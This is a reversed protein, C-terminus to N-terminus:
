VYMVKLDVTKANFVGFDKGPLLLLHPVKIGVVLNDPEIVLLPVQDESPHETGGLPLKVLDM